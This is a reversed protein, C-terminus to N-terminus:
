LVRQGEPTLSFRAQQGCCARHEALWGVAAAAHLRLLLEDHDQRLLLAMYTLPLQPQRAVLTMADRLPGDEIDSM